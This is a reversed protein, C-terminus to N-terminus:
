IGLQGSLVWSLTKEIARLQGGTFAADPAETRAKLFSVLTADARQLTAMMAWGPYMRRQIPEDVLVGTLTHRPDSQIREYVAQVDDNFGEITQLFNGDSFVLLGTVDHTENFQAARVFLKRLDANDFDRTAKSTYALTRM